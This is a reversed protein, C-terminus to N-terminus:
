AVFNVLKDRIEMGLILKNPFLTALGFLLGGYGCGIDIISVNVGDSPYTRPHEYHSPHEVTNSYAIHNEEL